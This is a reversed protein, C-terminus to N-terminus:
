AAVGMADILWRLPVTLVLGRDMGLVSLHEDCVPAVWCKNYATQIYVCGCPGQYRLDGM